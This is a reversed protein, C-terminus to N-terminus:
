CRSATTAVHRGIAELRGERHARTRESFQHLWTAVHPAPKDDPAQISLDIPRIAAAVMHVTDAIAAGLTTYTRM